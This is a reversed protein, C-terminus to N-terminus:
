AGNVAMAKKKRYMLVIFLIDFAAVVLYIVSLFYNEPYKTQFMISIVGTGLFKTWALAESHEPFKPVFLLSLFAVSMVVNVIYADIVGMPLDYQLMFLCSLPISGAL